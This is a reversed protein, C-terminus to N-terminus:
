VLIIMFLSETLETGLCLPQSQEAAPMYYFHDQTLFDCFFRFFRTISLGDFRFPFSSIKHFIYALNAAPDIVLCLAIGLAANSGAGLPLVDGLIKLAGQAHHALVLESLFLRYPM